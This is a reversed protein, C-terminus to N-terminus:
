RLDTRLAHRLADIDFPKHLFGHSATSKLTHMIEDDTITHGSMLVRQAGQQCDRATALVAEGNPGLGLDYDSLIVDFALAQMLAVGQTGDGAVTVTHGDSELIRRVSRLVLDNDEVVLIHM